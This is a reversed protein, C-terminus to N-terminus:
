DSGVAISPLMSVPSIALLVAMQAPTLARSNPRIM